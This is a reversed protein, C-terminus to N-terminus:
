HWWVAARPIGAVDRGGILVALGRGRQDWAAPAAAGDLAGGGLEAVTVQGTAAFLGITGDAGILAFESEGQSPRGAYIGGSVVLANGLVFAAHRSRPQLLPTLETWATDAFFGTRESLRMVFVSSRVDVGATDTANPSVLGTEGGVVYLRDGDVVTAAFARGEPLDPGDFWGNITGNPNVIAAHVNTLALSDAGFGGIVMLNGFAAIAGAGARAVPLPTLRTWFGYEGAATIGIGFVDSLIQGTTDIGGVMYAVSEVELAANTRDVGALAHLYRAAPVVSDPAPTWSTLAGSADIAGLFTSDQVVGEADVGGNLVVISAVTGGSPYRLATAAAGWLERPLAAGATWSRTTPDFTDAERIFLDLPGLTDGRVLLSVPGSAAGQPLRARIAGDSWSLVEAPALGQGTSVLVAGAGQDAGFGSGTSVFTAQPLLAAHVAGNVATFRAPISVPAASDRCGLTAVAVALALIRITM